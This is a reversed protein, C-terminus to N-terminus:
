PESLSSPVNIEDDYIPSISINGSQCIPNENHYEVIDFAPSVYLSKSVEEKM